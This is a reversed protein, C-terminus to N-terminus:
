RQRDMLASRRSTFHNDESTEIHVRGCAECEYMSRTLTVFRTDIYDHLVEGDNLNLDLYEQRFGQELLWVDTRGAKAAKVYSQLKDAIWGFFDESHVDPLICGKYPINDTQDSIVHGCRCGLKSM